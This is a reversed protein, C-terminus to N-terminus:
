SRRNVEKIFADFAEQGDGVADVLGLDLADAAGYFKAETKIAQAKTMRKGRGRGVAAAFQDRVADVHAQWRERLGEPLPLHPFGDTKNAGAQIFTVKIGEKELNASFDAHLIVAGISGVGGFQPMVIQRCQSALLYAASYAFDTLIAITPKAKSLAALAAACEFAGNVMGGFSDVEVVAGKIDPRAARAIQVQLGQYSTEGSYSGIWGGKQVLSGEACIVAVGEIVDFPAVGARDYARGLRDGIVGASPRGNAFAVHDVGGPGNVITLQHGTLQPGLARLVVEAKRADYMLPTDFLQGCLHPYAFTM